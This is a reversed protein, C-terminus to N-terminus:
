RPWAAGPGTGPAPNESSGLLSEYVRKTVAGVTEWSHRESMLRCITQRRFELSEYLDSDFYREITRALDDADGPRCVLGTSGEEVDHALSGVDSVIAPLGFGYGLFLVGSQFVSLYPLVLVDAAKFYVELEDDPVYEIRSVVKSTLGRADIDQQINSWYSEFGKPRGAIVLRCEPCSRGLRDLAGVLHELGKYPAINGFFLLVKHSCDLGVRSRAENRTLATNPVTDNVGFPIV